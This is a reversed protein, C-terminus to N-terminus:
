RIIQAPVASMANRDHTGFVSYGAIPLDATVRIYGSIRDQGVLSPFIQPLLKSLRNRASITVTITDDLSGDTKYLDIKATVEEDNPNLIALGTFYTQDSAVHSFIMEEALNAVLPLATGFTTREPDGYVISGALRPGSSSIEVYGQATDNGPIGFFSPDSVYVKGNGAIPLVQTAGIQAGDDGVFRLTISGGSEDLNTISLTSRYAAGVVYQPSYLTTGADEFDLGNLAEVYQSMRGMMQFPVIGSDSIVRIYDTPDPTIGPFLSSFSEAVGGYANATRTTQARLMGNSQMLQFRITAQFQNANAVNIDTYGQEEIEAFIFQTMPAAAVPAGDMVSLDADFILTFGTVADSNSTVEMWGAANKGALGSGFLQMDMVPLQGGAPLVRDVPNTIDPGSIAAGTEDYASFTLVAETTGLNVLAFGTFQTTSLGNKMGSRMKLRPYIFKRSKLPATRFSRTDSIGLSGASNRSQVRYYYTTSARLSNLNQEHRITLARALRTKLGCDPTTDYLIQTDSPVDTAWAITAGRSTIMTVNINFLAPPNDNSGAPTAFTRDDSIALNGAADRSRVRFHYMTNAALGSVSHQHTKILSLNMPTSSGYSSTTGYEVQSDANEDTAWNVATSSSTTNNAAVGTILPPTTDAAATTAFSFDASVALNGNADKSKVRFHYTTGSNLGNLALAHEAVMSANLATASGYATSTGYEVQSDSAESTHWTITAGATSIASSNVGSILPPTTDAAALTTFTFDASTAINGAADASKVRYHYTTSPSLGSLAQSHATIMSSNLTTSAGYSTTPGYVVQTDTAEDTAWTITAGSSSIASSTVASIIPMTTDPAALTMFTFDASTAINGAADASKVRYHYTTSPSLGSLAQSHAMIMSSNLTTSAGYSTTPGYVIQTDTAENTAWTITAGSSSIGSSTVASIVPPTTDLAASTTLTYDGSTALNASADKSKVRYHYTTSASLGSLSQSHSTVKSTNLTTSTGYGATPGYEVQTDSAENTTWIITAGSSSIGSSTVASIVPPTTDPAASTTFTFDGSTALNASADKSKVRYHYTTSASLGSLSQSHSTVKSTNLTTSTGYGATPGYEVQTDSAENTTWTITAGSSSIDSSTVASIVPPTTDPAASTTFTFDGSTALNGAADRSKVRYHYTTSASLGSLSQSHSTVKSTNLTSSSSYSTTLGYNVQTDSAENTTWNITAGSSSISSSTVASIVPPTQDPPASTAFTFDGSTALNGSADRSKVRYHYTTSASLGSLSQSHSTVKGTNLTSSSSYSTTLGYDVQTDSAENTTWNITAGSSSISSSTVASIVPPTTDAPPLVTVSGNVGNISVGAGDPDSAVVGSMTIPISGAPAGSAISVRVIAVPGPGLINRNMDFLMIRVGGSITNGIATKSAATAASGTSTSVYTLSSSFMLDFQLSSVSGSGPAFSISLDVSAGAAASASGTTLIASSQPEFARVAGASGLSWLLGLALVFLAQLIQTCTSSLRRSPYCFRPM